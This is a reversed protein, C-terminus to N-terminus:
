KICEKILTILEEVNPIIKISGSASDPRGGGSGQYKTTILKMIINSNYVKIIDKTLGVMISGNKLILVVISKEINSKIYDMVKILDKRDNYDLISAYIDVGNKTEKNNLIRIGEHHALKDALNNNLKVLEEKEILLSKLRDFTEISSKSDILKDISKSIAERHKIEKYAAYGTMAEIRRIGSSISEESKIIFSGINSSNSVHTGGCFEKSTDEFCVVRVLDEYKESFEHKAELKIAEDYPLVLTKCPINQNIYENVINEIKLIEEQTLKEFHNFDFRLYENSVFSGKQEIHNGLVNSLAKNLLHTASHNKEIARRKLTDIILEGLTNENIEGFLVKFHHLHQKNPALIVEDIECSFNDSVFKGSDSIQGGMEAYFPTNDFIAYGEESISEVRKGDKFLAIVKAKLSDKEYSFESKGKFNILDICQKNMSEDNNRSARARQKQEDMLSNFVNEDITISNEECIEKTLELPFGYTDFLRFAEEGSLSHNKNILENLLQEGSNLTKLFKEEELRVIKKIFEKKEDLYPYFTNMNSVVVDVLKYLFSGSINLKIGYRMARRLLRRLVYGRGENSFFAGDALAFTCSRIHDAIVRFAMKNDEYKKNSLKEIEKIIPVFLDTEFNSDCGQLVCAIRELGAGTDINKSPLEKFDKRDVGSVANYQSFVIGWIEIYRDNDIDLELLEIGRHEKDYKEGRDFFVETNPGAPGEGIQWYNGELAILHSKDVGEKLWLEYSEKDMPNYTFYLSEKEIGFYDKSTLIEFAWHIVEKRFYDGISFNGLMEFFTQHRSTRGVNEIDNTRISKQVNTIRKSPPVESGDFYKKLAAVGSNIWLLTPDDHPVLSAGLEVTHGREKFFRLWTERIQQATLKNM